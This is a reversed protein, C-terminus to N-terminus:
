EFGSAFVNEALVRVELSADTSEKCNDTARIVLTHTGLPSAAALTVVGSPAVGASGAYTGLAQLVPPMLTGGDSPGLAPSVDVGSGLLLTVPNYTLVPPPNPIVQIALDAENFSPESDTARLTFIAFDAGCEARVLARVEGGPTVGLIEVSVSNVTAQDSGNVELTLSEPPDQADSVQAIVFEQFPDGEGETRTIGMTADITPPSPGGRPGGRLGADRAPVGAYAYNSLAGAVRGRDASLPDALAPGACFGFVTLLVVLIRLMSSMAAAGRVAAVSISVM